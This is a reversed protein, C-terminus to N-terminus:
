KNGVLADGRIGVWNQIDSLVQNMDEVTELYRQVSDNSMIGETVWSDEKWRPHQPDLMMQSVEIESLGSKSAVDELIRQCSNRFTTQERRLDRVIRRLVHQYHFFDKILGKEEAYFKLGEVLIPFIALALGM